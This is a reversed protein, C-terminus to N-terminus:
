GRSTSAGRYSHKSERPLRCSGERPERCVNGREESGETQGFGRGQRHDGVVVLDSLLQVRDARWAAVARMVRLDEVAQRWTGTRRGARRSSTCVVTRKGAPASRAVVCRSRGQSPFGTCRLRLRALPRPQHPLRRRIPWPRCRAGRAQRRPWATQPIAQSVRAAVMKAVRPRSDKLGSALVSDSQVPASGVSMNHGLPRGHRDRGLHVSQWIHPM